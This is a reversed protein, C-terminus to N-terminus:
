DSVTGRVVLLEHDVIMWIGFHGGFKGGMGGITFGVGRM